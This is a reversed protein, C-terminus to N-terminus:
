EKTHSSLYRDIASRCVEAADVSKTARMVFATIHPLVAACFSLNDLLMTETWAPTILRQSLMLQAADDSLPEAADEPSQRLFIVGGLPYTETTSISSTGCWPLGYALPVGDKIGILNLDGNLLPLGYREKWLNTHTSKGTGSMGSFLWAQGRYLLSASHIAYLGHARARMLFVFRIGHFLAEACTESDTDRCYFCAFRAGRDLQCEVIDPSGPFLLCYGDATEIALFDASRVLIKGVPRTSPADFRLSVNLDAPMDAATDGRKEFALFEEAIYTDSFALRMTVTGICFTRANESAFCLRPAAPDVIGYTRLSDLFQAIDARLQPEDAEDAEYYAALLPLLEHEEKGACLAEWLLCGSANLKMGKKFAAINQGYPLLYSEGSLRTLVYGEQIKM